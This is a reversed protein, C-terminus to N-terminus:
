RPGPLRRPTPVSNSWVWRSGAQSLVPYAGLADVAQALATAYVYIHDDAEVSEVLLGVSRPTGPDRTARNM